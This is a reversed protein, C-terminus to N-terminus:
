GVPRQAPRGCTTCFKWDLELETGCAPCNVVTLNQGCHPCFVIRRGLPLAGGCYRCNEDHSVSENNGSSRAGAASESPAARRPATAAPGATAGREIPASSEVGGGAHTTAGAEMRVSVRNAPTDSVNRMADPALAVQATAFERFAGPDPNPSQLEQTLRDRMRDDVILYGGEGSLLTLLAMEYDQNTELGLERRHHRYPMITQYLEAVEFPRTLYEPYTARITRTLHRFMRDLSDM